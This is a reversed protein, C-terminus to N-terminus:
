GGFRDFAAKVQEDTAFEGRRAEALGRQVVLLDAPDIPEPEDDRALRFMARAIEGQVDAPLNRVADVVQELLKTMTPM